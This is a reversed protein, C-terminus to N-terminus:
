LESATKELSAQFEAAIQKSGEELDGLVIISGRLSKKPLVKEKTHALMWDYEQKSLLVAVVRGHDSIEFPGAGKAVADVIPLFQERAESKGLTRKISSHRIAKSRKESVM